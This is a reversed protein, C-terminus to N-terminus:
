QLLQHKGKAESLELKANVEERLETTDM